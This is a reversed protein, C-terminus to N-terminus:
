PTPAPADPPASALELSRIPDSGDWDRSAASITDFIHRQAPLVRAYELLWGDPQSLYAFVSEEMGSFGGYALLEGHPQGLHADVDDTEVAVHHFISARGTRRAADLAEHWPSPGDGLPQILELQIGGWDGLAANLVVDHSAGGPWHVTMPINELLFFPGVGFREVWGEAARRADEVVYGHQFLRTGRLSM